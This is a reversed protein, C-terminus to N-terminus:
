KADREPKFERESKADAEVFAFNFRYWDSALTWERNTLANVQFPKPLQTLDLRMRVGAEYKQGRQVQAKELVNWNRVNKLVSLAEGLTAYSQYLSGTSIRYQRTLAHYAIRITQTRTVSKEDFWYWRPRTLEFEVLFYLPLGKNIAEELRPSLEFDFRANLAYNDDVSELSADIVDITDARAVGPLLLAVCWAFVLGRLAQMLKNGWHRTLRPKACGAYCRTIFATMTVTPCCSDTTPPISFRPTAIRKSFVLSANANEEPFVSCTAYLLKGGRGLMRWLTELM